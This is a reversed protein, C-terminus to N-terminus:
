VQLPVVRSVARLVEARAAQGHVRDRRQRAGRRRRGAGHPEGPLRVHLKAGGRCEGRAFFLRM